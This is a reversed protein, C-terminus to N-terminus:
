AGLNGKRLGRVLEHFGVSLLNTIFDKNLLKFRNEEPM